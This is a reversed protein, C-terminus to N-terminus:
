DVFKLGIIGALIMSLFLLRPLAVSEKWLIIGVIVTGAAGIGTWVAYATGLPLKKMAIALLVVSITMGVVTIVSPWLKSFGESMKLAAAWVVEFLGAIFLIYWYM